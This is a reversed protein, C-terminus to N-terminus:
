FGFKFDFAFYAGNSYTPWLAERMAYALNFEFVDFDLGGGLAFLFGDRGGVTLGSRLPLWPIPRYEAGVGLQPTFVNGFDKSLGQKWQATLDLEDILQYHAGFILNVPLSTSFSGVDRTTDTETSRDVNDDDFLISDSASFQIVATNVDWDISAFINELMVSFHWDDDYVASAALDFGMGGGASVGGNPYARRTKFNVRQYAGEEETGDAMEEFRKIHMDSDLVELVGIGSYYNLKAAVSINDIDFKRIKAKLLHAYSFSYKVASYFSGTAFGPEKFQYNPTLDLEILAAKLTQTPKLTVGGSVLLDIGFGFNNYAMSFINMNVDANVDLGDDAFFDIISNKDNLDWEGKNGEKTFYRNYDNISISSNSIAFLPSIFKLEVRNNFGLNAPNVSFADVGKSYSLFNNGLALGTANFNQAFAASSLILIMGLKILSNM